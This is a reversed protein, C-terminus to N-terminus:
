WLFCPLHDLQWAWSRQMFIRNGHKAVSLVPQLFGLCKCRWVLFLPLIKNGCSMKCGKAVFTTQHCWSGNAVFNPKDCLKKPTAYPTFNLLALEAGRQHTPLHLFSPLPFQLSFCFPLCRFPVEIYIPVGCRVSGVIMTVGEKFIDDLPGM